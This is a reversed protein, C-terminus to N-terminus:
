GKKGRSTSSKRTNKEKSDVPKEDAPENSKKLIILM